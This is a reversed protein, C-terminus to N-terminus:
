QLFSPSCSRAIRDSSSMRFIARTVTTSSFASPASLRCNTMLRTSAWSQSTPSSGASAARQPPARGGSSRSWPHSRDWGTGVIRCDPSKKVPRLNPVRRLNRAWRREGPNEELDMRSSSTTPIGAHCIKGMRVPEGLRVIAHGRWQSLDDAMLRVSIKGHDRGDEEDGKGTMTRAVRGAPPILIKGRRTRTELLAEGGQTLTGCPHVPLDVEDGAQRRAPVDDRALHRKREAHREVDDQRHRDGSEHPGEAPHLVPHGPRPGDQVGDGRVRAVREADTRYGGRGRFTVRLRVGANQFGRVEQDRQGRQRGGLGNGAGGM